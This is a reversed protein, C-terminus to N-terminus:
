FFMLYSAEITRKTKAFRYLIFFSPVLLMEYSFFFIILSDTFFLVYGSFFITLIFLMFGNVETNNYSLCYIISISTILVFIYIFPYVYVYLINYGPVMGSSISMTSYSLTNLAVSSVISIDSDNFLTNLLSFSILIFFMVPALIFNTLKTSSVSQGYLVKKLIPYFFIFLIFNFIIYYIYGHWIM